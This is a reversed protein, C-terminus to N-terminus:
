DAEINIKKLRYCGKPCYSVELTEAEFIVFNKWSKWNDVENKFDSRQYATIKVGKDFNIIYLWEIDGAFEKDPQNEYQLTLNVRLWNEIDHLTHIDGPETEDTFRLMQQVLDLGTVTPYGDWHRYYVKNKYGNNPNGEKLRGEMEFMINCRTAM